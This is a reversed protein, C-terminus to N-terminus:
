SAARHAAGHHTAPQNSTLVDGTASFIMLTSGLQIRDGSVLNHKSVRQSNVFSGNSSNLDVLSWSGDTGRDLRAHHRSVETDHLQIQNTSERGLTTSASLLEFHQGSDRGRIVFLSAM